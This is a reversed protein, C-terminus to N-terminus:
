DAIKFYQDLTMWKGEDPPPGEMILNREEIKVYPM